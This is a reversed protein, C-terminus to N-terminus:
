VGYLRVRKVRQGLLNWIYAKFTVSKHHNVHIVLFFILSSKYRQSRKDSYDDLINSDAICKLYVAMVM